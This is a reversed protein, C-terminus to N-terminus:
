SKTMFFLEKEIDIATNKVRKRIIFYPICYMMLAHFFVFVIPIISDAFGIIAMPIFLIYFLTIFIYLPILFNSFGNVKADIVVQDNQQRFTGTVRALYSTRDFFERRRRIKFSNQSINGKYRNKSSSFAEFMSSFAGISGEDVNAKFHSIFESKDINLTIQTHKILQIRELFDHM